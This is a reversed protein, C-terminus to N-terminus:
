SFEALWCLAQNSFLSSMAMHDSGPVFGNESCSLITTVALAMPDGVAL